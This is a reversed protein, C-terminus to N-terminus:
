LDVNQSFQIGLIGVSHVQADAHEVAEVVEPVHAEGELDQALRHEVEELAIVIHGIRKILDSMYGVLQAMSNLKHMVMPHRM